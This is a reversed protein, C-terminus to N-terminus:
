SFGRVPGEPSAAETVAPGRARGCPREEGSVWSGHSDTAPRVM